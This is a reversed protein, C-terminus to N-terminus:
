PDAGVARAQIRRYEGQLSQGQGTPDAMHETALYAHPFLCEQTFVVRGNHKVGVHELPVVTQKCIDVDIYATERAFGKGGQMGAAM